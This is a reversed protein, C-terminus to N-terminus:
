IARNKRMYLLYFIVSIFALSFWTIAYQLHDNRIVLEGGIELPLTKDDIIKPLIFIMPVFETISTFEQIQKINLWFWINDKLDNDPVFMGKPEIILAIAEISQEEQSMFTEPRNEQLKQESPVWGRNVLITRGDELLFPSILQYGFERNRNSVLHIEKGEIYQGKLLFKKAIWKKSDGIEEPLAIAPSNFNHDIIAIIEEKQKLRELQWFGFSTLLILTFVAFITPILQYRTFNSMKKVAM